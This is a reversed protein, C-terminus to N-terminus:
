YAYSKSITVAGFLQSFSAKKGLVALRIFGRGNKEFIARGGRWSRPYTAKENQLFKQTM